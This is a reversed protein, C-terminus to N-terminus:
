ISRAPWDERELLARVEEDSVLQTTEDAQGRCLTVGPFLMQYGRAAMFSRQLAEWGLAEQPAGAASSAAGGAVAAAARAAGADAAAAVRAAVYEHLEAWPSAFYLAGCASPLAARPGVSPSASEAAGDEAAPSGLAVGLLKPPAGGGAGSPGAATANTGSAGNALGNAHAALVVVAKKLVAYFHPSLECDDEVILVAEADGSPLWAEAAAVSRELPAAAAAAESTGAGDPAYQTRFRLQKRGHPWRWEQARTAADPAAGRQLLVALAASDGLMQAGGLSSMLRRLGGGGLAGWAVVAIRIRAEGKWRMLAEAPLSALWGLAAPPADAPLALVPLPPRAGGGGGGGGGGSSRAGGGRGRIRALQAAARSAASSADAVYLLMRPKTADIM